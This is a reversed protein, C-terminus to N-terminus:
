IKEVEVYFAGMDEKGDVTFWTRLSTKGAKLDVIMEAYEQDGSVECSSEIGQVEMRAKTIKLSRGEASAVVSTGEIAPRIGTGDWMKLGSEKPWRRLKFSYKGDQDIDIMWTGNERKGIRIHHQQWPSVGSDSHWDHCFLTVPNEADNGVIFHPVNHYTPAIDDWWKSYDERLEEVKGPFRDALNNKQYPDKEIDYLETGNVLRWCDKMLVTKSWPIPVEKSQQNNVVVVRGDFDESNGELLPKMSTGDFAIEKSLELDCMDILTPMIDYHAVLDNIDTGSSIGGNKWHIFLPVRHGGEYASGKIGRMGANYGKSIGDVAGYGKATGNDTTFIFITNDMIGKDELYNMIKGVNEDVNAIMGYFEAMLVRDDDKYPEIYKNDVWYPSHVANTPIYCFFPEGDNSSQEIFKIANDFWIDNCYGEYEELQGNHVYTDNFYDNDWHDMTQGVGGGGHTLVEEFGRDEPRFPYSDGLHWKGFLGTRYGNDQFVNAMTVEDELLLSRGNITQWVGVRNNHRGTMLAARTPASLPCVHYQTFRASQSHLTDINPTQIIENGLAAIDGYGQDDVLILVVNPKEQNPSNTCSALLAM